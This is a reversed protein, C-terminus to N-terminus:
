TLSNSDSIKYLDSNPNSESMIGGAGSVQKVYTFTLLFELNAELKRLILRSPEAKM